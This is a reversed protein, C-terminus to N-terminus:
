FFFVGFLKEPQRENIACFSEHTHKIRANVEEEYDKKMKYVNKENQEKRTTYQMM